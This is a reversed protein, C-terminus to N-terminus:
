SDHGPNFDGSVSAPTETQVDSFQQLAEGFIRALEAHVAAEAVNHEELRTLHLEQTRRLVLGALSAVAADAAKKAIAEAEDLTCYPDM